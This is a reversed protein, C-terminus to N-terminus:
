ASEPPTNTYEEQIHKIIIGELQSLRKLIYAQTSIIVSSMMILVSMSLESMDETVMPTKSVDM